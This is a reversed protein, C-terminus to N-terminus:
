SGGGAAGGGGGSDPRANEPLFDACAKEANKFATSNPDITAPDFEMRGSKEPDPFSPLGNQRMCQAYRLKEAVPWTDQSPGSGDQTNGAYQECKGHADRFTPSNPDIGRPLQARGDAPDPFDPIGNTRMCQAYATPDGEGDPAASGTPGGETTPASAVRKSPEDGGCAPVGFVLVTLM